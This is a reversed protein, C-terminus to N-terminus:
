SRFSHQRRDNNRHGPFDMYTNLLNYFLPQWLGQM